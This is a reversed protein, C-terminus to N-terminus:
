PGETLRRIKERIEQEQEQVFGSFMDQWTKLLNLVQRFCAFATIRQLEGICRETEMRSPPTSLGTTRKYYGTLIMELLDAPLLGALERGILKLLEVDEPTLERHLGQSRGIFSASCFWSGWLEIGETKPDVEKTCGSCKM